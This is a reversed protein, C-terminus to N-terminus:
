RVDVWGPEYRGFRLRLIPIRRYPGVHRAAPALRDGAADFCHEGATSGGPRPEAENAGPARWFASLAELWRVYDYIEVVKNWRDQPTWAGYSRSRRLDLRAIAAGASDLGAPFDDFVGPGANWSVALAVPFSFDKSALRNLRKQLAAIKQRAIAISFGERFRPDRDPRCLYGHTAEYSCRDYHAPSRDREDAVCCPTCGPCSQIALPGACGTPSIAGAVGASEHTMLARVWISEPGAIGDTLREVRSRTAADPPSLAPEAFCLSTAALGGSAPGPAGAPRESCAAGALAFAAALARGATTM